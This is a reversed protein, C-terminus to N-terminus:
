GPYGHNEYPDDDIWARSQEAVPSESEKIRKVLEDIKEPTLRKREGPHRLEWAMLENDLRKNEEQLQQLEKELKDIRDHARKTNNNAVNLVQGCKWATYDLQKNEELLRENEKKIRRAETRLADDELLDLTDRGTHPEGNWLADDLKKNEELLRRVEAILADAYTLLLGLYFGDENIVPLIKAQAVLTWDLGYERVFCVVNWLGPTANKRAEELEALQADTIHETM